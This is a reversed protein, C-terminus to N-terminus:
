CCQAASHLLAFSTSVLPAEEELVAKYMHKLAHQGWVSEYNFSSLSPGAKRDGQFCRANSHKCSINDVPAAVCVSSCHVTHQLRSARLATNTPLLSLM